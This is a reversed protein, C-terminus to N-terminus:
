DVSIEEGDREPALGDDPLIEGPVGGSIPGANSPRDALKAFVLLGQNTRRTSLVEIVVNERGILHSADNVIVLDGDALYGAAQRPQNGEKILDLVLQEGPMHDPTLDNALPRLDTVAVGRRKATEKVQGSCTVLRLGLRRAVEVLRDTLDDVEPLENEAVHVPVRLDRLVDLRELGRRARRSTVPDPGAAMTQLQDVVFRPVVLGGVLLGYRGLVLLFPTMAASSDVLMAYGPPPEAPPALIRGLGAAAVVQRGKTIGVQFGIFTFAWALAAAAPWVVPSHVLVLLPVSLAAGLLFGAIGTLTGAFLEGPPIHDFRDAARDSGRRLLRGLIGGAVYAVLAGLVLGVVQGTSSHSAHGLEYGALAGILVLILRFIEVFLM